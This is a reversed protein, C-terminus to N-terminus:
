LDADILRRFAVIGPCQQEPPMDAPM